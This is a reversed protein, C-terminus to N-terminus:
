DALHSQELRHQNPFDVSFLLAVLEDCPLPAPTSGTTGTQLGNRYEHLGVGAIDRTELLRQDLVEVAFVEVRQLLRRGILLEDILEPQGV